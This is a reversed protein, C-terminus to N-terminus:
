IISGGHFYMHDVNVLSLGMDFADYQPYKINLEEKYIEAALNLQSVNKLEILNITNVGKIRIINPKYWQNWRSIYTQKDKAHYHIEETDDEDYIFEHSVFSM